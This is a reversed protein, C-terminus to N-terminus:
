GWDLRFRLSASMGSPVMGDAPAVLSSDDDFISVGPNTGILNFVPAVAIEGTAPPNSGISLVSGYGSLEMKFQRPGLGNQGGDSSIYKGGEYNTFQGSPDTEVTAHYTPAYTIAWEKDATWGLEVRVTTTTKWDFNYWIQYTRSAAHEKLYITNSPLRLPHM